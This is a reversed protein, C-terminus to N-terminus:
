ESLFETTKEVMEKACVECFGSESLGTFLDQARKKEEEGKPKDSALVLTLTARSDALLKEEVAHALPPYTEFGFNPVSGRYELIEGRFIEAKSEELPIHAEVSRIFKMDPEKPKGSLRDREVNEGGRVFQRKQKRLLEIESIYRNFLEHALDHYARLFAKSVAKVTFNKYEAIVSGNEGASLLEKFKEIDEPGYGVRHDFVNRLARIVSLPTLCGDAKKVLETNIAALVDRSSVGFMGERRSIDPDKQGEELLARLDIPNKDKDKIENLAKDGNYLKAKTLLEVGM